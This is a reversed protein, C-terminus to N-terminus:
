KNKWEQSDQDKEPATPGAQTPSDGQLTKREELPLQAPLLVPELFHTMQILTVM